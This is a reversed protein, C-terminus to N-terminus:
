PNEQIIREFFALYHQAITDWRFEDALKTAGQRLRERLERSQRLRLLASQLAASNGPSVLLMNEGDQFTPIKVQPTTTVITCGYHLAAMLSGRRYSAGDLFPLVVADSAALYAGVATEDELYGTRHIHPELQLRTIQDNMEEIYAANTPDSSGSGGGVLVLRAPVNAAHLNALCTLLTELGKSRNFLGFYALLFEDAQAGAQTRWATPNFDEA